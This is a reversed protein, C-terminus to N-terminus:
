VPFADVRGQSFLDWCQTVVRDFKLKSRFTVGLVKVHSSRRLIIHHFNFEFINKEKHINDCSVEDPENEEGFNFFTNLFIQLM